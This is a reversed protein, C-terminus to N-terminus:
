PPPSSVRRCRYRSPSPWWRWRCWHPTPTWWPTCPRFRSGIIQDRRGVRGTGRVPRTPTPRVARNEPLPSARVSVQDSQGPRLPCVHEGRSPMAPRGQRGSVPNPLLPHRAQGVPAPRCCRDVAVPRRVSGPRVERTPSGACAEGQLQPNHMESPDGTGRHSRRVPWLNAPAGASCAGPGRSTAEPGRSPPLRARHCCLRRRAGSVRRPAPRPHRGPTRVQRGRPPSWSSRPVTQSRGSRLRLLAPCAITLHLVAQDM